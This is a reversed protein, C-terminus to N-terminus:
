RSPGFRVRGILCGMMYVCLTNAFYVLRCCKNSLYVRNHQAEKREPQLLEKQWSIDNIWGNMWSYKVSVHAIERTGDHNLELILM